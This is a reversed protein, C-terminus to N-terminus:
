GLGPSNGPIPRRSVRTGSSRRAEVANIHIGDIVSAISHDVEEHSNYALLLKGWSTGKDTVLDAGPHVLQKM